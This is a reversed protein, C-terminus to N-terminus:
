HEKRAANKPNKYEHCANEQACPHALIQDIYRKGSYEINIQLYKDFISEMENKLESCNLGIRELITISSTFAKHLYMGIIFSDSIIQKTDCENFILRNNNLSLKFSRYTGANNGHKVMSFRRYIDKHFQYESDDKFVKKLQEDVSWPKKNEKTNELWLFEKGNQSAIFALDLTLEFINLFLIGADRIRNKLMLLVISESCETIRHLIPVIIGFSVRVNRNFKITLRILNQIISAFTGLFGLYYLAEKDEITPLDHTKIIFKQNL